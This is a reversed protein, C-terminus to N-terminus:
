GVYIAERDIRRKLYENRMGKYHVVDVPRELLEELRIMIAALTLLNPEALDVVVDVDSADTMQGRAVSGFVGLRRLGYEERSSRAFQALLELIELRSKVMLGM